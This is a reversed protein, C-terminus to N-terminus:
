WGIGVLRGLWSDGPQQVSRRWTMLHAQHDSPRAAIFLTNNSEGDRVRALGNREARLSVHWLRITQGWNQAQKFRGSLNCTLNCAPSISTRAWAYSPPRYLADKWSKM